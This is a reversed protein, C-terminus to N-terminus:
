WTNGNMRGKVEKSTAATVNATVFHVHPMGKRETGILCQQVDAVYCTVANQNPSTYPHHGIHIKAPVSAIM